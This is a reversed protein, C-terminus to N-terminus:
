VSVSDIISSIEKQTLNSELRGARMELCEKILVVRWEEEQPVPSYTFSSPDAMEITDAGLKLNLALNFVIQFIHTLELLAM